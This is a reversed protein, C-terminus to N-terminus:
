YSTKKEVTAIFTSPMIGLSDALTFLTALTPQRLGRELLSIFTCDLGCDLALQEQSYGAKVRRQRLVDGFATQLNGQERKV